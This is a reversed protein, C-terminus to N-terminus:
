GSRLSTLQATHAPLHRTTQVALAIRGWEQPEDVVVEDRDVLLCPVPTALADPGLRELLLVVEDARRVATGVLAALDGDHAKVLADLTAVDNPLANDFRAQRQQLIGRSVAAIGDDNVAVHAVVQLHSWQGPPPAAFGGALAEAFFVEYAARLAATDTVTQPPDAQRDAVDAFHELVGGWADPGCYSRRAALADAGLVDWGLHTLEVRTGADDGTFVVEVSTARAEDHGPHWTLALRRGPEWATVRGWLTEEGDLSREVLRDGTFAVGGSREGFLGHSLLPWWAGIRNTFLEFAAEPTRRVHVARLVPSLTM